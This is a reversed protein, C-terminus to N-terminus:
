YRKPFSPWLSEFAIPQPHELRKRFVRELMHESLLTQRVTQMATLVEEPEKEDGDESEKKGAEKPPQETHPPSGNAAHVCCVIVAKAHRVVDNQSSDMVGVAEVSEVAARWLPLGSDKKGEGVYSLAIRHILDAEVRSRLASPTEEKMVNLLRRWIERGEEWQGKRAAVAGLGSQARALSMKDTGAVREAKLFCKRAQELEGEMLNVDGLMLNSELELAANNNQKALKLLAKLHKQASKADHLTRGMEAGLRHLREENAPSLKRTGRLEALATEAGAVDRMLWLCSISRHRLHWQLDADNTETAALGFFRHASQLNGHRFLQEGLAGTVEVRPRVGEEGTPYLDLARLYCTAAREHQADVAHLEALQLLLGFSGKGSSDVLNLAKSYLQRAAARNGERSLTAAAATLTALRDGSATAVPAVPRPSVFRKRGVRGKPATAVQRLVERMDVMM